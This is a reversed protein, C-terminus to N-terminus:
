NKVQAGVRYIAVPRKDKGLLLKLSMVRTTIDKREIHDFCYKLLDWAYSIDIEDVKIPFEFEHMMMIGSNFHEFRCRMKDNTDKRELTRTESFIWIGLEAEFLELDNSGHIADLRFTDGIQKNKDCEELTTRLATLCTKSSIVTTPYSIKLVL